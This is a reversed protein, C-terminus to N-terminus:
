YYMYMNDNNCTHLHYICGVPVYDVLVFANQQVPLVIKPFIHTQHTPNLNPIDLYCLKHLCNKKKILNFISQATQQCVSHLLPKGSSFCPKVSKTRSNDIANLCFFKSKDVATDGLLSIM